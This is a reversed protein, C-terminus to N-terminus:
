SLSVESLPPSHLTVQRPTPLLSPPLSVLFLIHPHTPTPTYQPPFMTNHTHCLSAQGMELSAVLIKQLALLMMHGSENAQSVNTTWVLIVPHTQPSTHECTSHQLTCIYTHVTHACVTYMYISTDMHRCAYNSIWHCTRHYEM